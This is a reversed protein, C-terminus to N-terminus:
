CWLHADSDRFRGCACQTQKWSASILSLTAGSRAPACIVPRQQTDKVIRHERDDVQSSPSKASRLLVRSKEEVFRASYAPSKPRSSKKLSSPHIVSPLCHGGHRGHDLAAAWRIGFAEVFLYRRVRARCKLVPRTAPMFFHTHQLANFVTMTLRLRASKPCILDVLGSDVLGLTMCCSLEHADKIQAAESLPLALPGPRIKSTDLESQSKATLELPRKSRRAAGAMPNM